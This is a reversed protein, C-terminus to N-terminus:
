FVTHVGRCTRIRSILLPGTVTLIGADWVFESYEGCERGGGFVCYCIRFTGGRVLRLRGLEFDKKMFSDDWHAGFMVKPFQEEFPDVMCTGSGHVFAVSSPM